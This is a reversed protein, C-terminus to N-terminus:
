YISGDILAFVFFWFGEVSKSQFNRVKPKGYYSIAKSGIVFWRKQWRRFGKLGAPSKKWVWGQKEIIQGSAAM